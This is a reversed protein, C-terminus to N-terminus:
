CRFALYVGVAEAYALAGPRRRTAAKDDNRFGAALADRHIARDSRERPRLFDDAGRTAPTFLDSCTTMVTYRPALYGRPDTPLAIKRSGSRSRRQAVAEHESHPRCIYAGADGEAVIAMLRAHM